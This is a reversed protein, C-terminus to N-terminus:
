FPFFLPITLIAVTCYVFTIPWGVKIFDRVKYGGANMVLLNTQYGFPSIFSASAAYAIAMVFPMLELQYTKSLAIAIPLMIAAAASNTMTETLLVTILFLGIFVIYISQGGLREFLGATLFQALGSHTFAFAIILASVIMVWLEFPFRRRITTGDLIKTLVCSLVYLALTDILNLPTIVAVIIAALFGVIALSNQAKSLPENAVRGSLLFFNRSLNQRKKFDDGVALVMKDGSLVRQEGLKGSLTQGQRNIAVVAADFRSRFEVQKLTKGVLVSEPSVIVETLNSTLLDSSEAFVDVKDLQSLQKIHTVDGSFILKDGEEVLTEPSVPSILHEGRVIETLFLGDLARLGNERVNKGILKSNTLVEADIFYTDQQNTQQQHEPLVNSMLVIAIFCFFLLCLGVPLFSFFSLEALGQKLLLGNIVLNTSTGILTLTGGLIAFYSLPILLKSPTHDNNRLVVGMLTAVVATNNLVSSSFATITGIRFLSGLYSNHFLHKSLWNLLLTRELALSAIMLLILTIVASNVASNLIVNQDAIGFLYLSVVAGIFVLSPRIRTFLLCSILGLLVLGTVIM